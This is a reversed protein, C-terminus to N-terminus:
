TKVTKAVEALKVFQAEQESRRKVEVADQELTRASVTLRSPVGILDADAFKAGAPLDRDDYLVEVGDKVLDAYLKDAAKVVAEDAGLRLMHVAYPAIAEPWVLGREDAYREIVVGMVRALGIGYSGLVVHQQQGDEDTFVLGLAESKSTGFSFINGVESAKMQELEARKVGLKKLVDDRMVEENIAVGKERHLYIVDEGADTLTQFEHSFEAFAGGSAFTFYTWEGLGVREFIRLYAEKVENYFKEHEAETRSFSYLDKM